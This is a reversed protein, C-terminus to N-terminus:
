GPMVIGYWWRFVQLLWPEWRMLERVQGRLELVEYEVCEMQHELNRDEIKGGREMEDLTQGIRCLQTHQLGVTWRIAGIREDLQWEMQAIFFSCISSVM